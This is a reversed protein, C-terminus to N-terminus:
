NGDGVCLVCLALERRMDLELRWEAVLYGASASVGGASTSGGPAVSNTLYVVTTPLPCVAM